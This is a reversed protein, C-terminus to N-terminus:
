SAIFFRLMSKWFKLFQDLNYLVKPVRSNDSDTILQVTSNNVDKYKILADADRKINGDWEGEANRQVNWLTSDGSQKWVDMEIKSNDSLM